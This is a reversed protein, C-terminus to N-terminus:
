RTASNNTEIARAEDGEDEDELSDRSPACLRGNNYDDLMFYMPEGDGWAESNGRVNSCVPYSELWSDADDITDQICSADTGLAVNLKAAVVARFITKTKDGREPQLMLALIEEKTMTQGGCTLEDVPWAEPHNKWYGPTGTGVDPPTSRMSNYFIAVCGEKGEEIAGTISTTGAPLEYWTTLYEGLNDPDEEINWIFVRDVQYGDMQVESITVQDPGTATSPGAYVDACQDHGLTVETLYLIADEVGPGVAEIDFDFLETSGEAVKCVTFYGVKLQPLFEMDKETPGDGETLLATQSTDASSGRPETLGSDGCAVLAFLAFLTLLTMTVANRSRIM